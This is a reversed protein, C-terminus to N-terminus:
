WDGGHTRPRLIAAVHRVDGGCRVQLAEVAVGSASRGAGGRLSLGAVGGFERDLRLQREYLEDFQSDVGLGANNVQVAPYRRARAEPLGRAPSLLGSDGRKSHARDYPDRTAVTLRRCAAEGEDEPRPWACLYVEGNRARDAVVRKTEVAAGVERRVVAGRGIRALVRSEDGGLLRACAGAGSLRSLRELGGAGGVAKLKALSM